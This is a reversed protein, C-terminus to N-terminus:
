GVKCTDGIDDWPAKDDQDMNRVLNNCYIFSAFQFQEWEDQFKKSWDDEEDMEATVIGLIEEHWKQDIEMKEISAEILKLLAKMIMGIMNKEETM